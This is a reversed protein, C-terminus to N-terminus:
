PNEKLGELVGALRGKAQLELFARSGFYLATACLECIRPMDDSMPNKEGCSPCHILPQPCSM